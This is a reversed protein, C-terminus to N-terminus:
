ENSQKSNQELSILLEFMQQKVRNLEDKLNTINGLKADLDQIHKDCTEIMKIAQMRNSEVSRDYSNILTSIEELSFGLNRGRIALKLRVLDRKRYLRHSNRRLPSIIGKDEYLRITRVNTGLMVAAEGIKYLVTKQKPM